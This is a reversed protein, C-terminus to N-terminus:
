GLNQMPTILTVWCDTSLGQFGMLQTPAGAGAGAASSLEPRRDDARLGQRGKRGQGQGEALAQRKVDHDSLLRFTCGGCMQRPGELWQPFAATYGEAKFCLEVECSVLGCASCNNLHGVKEVCGGEM